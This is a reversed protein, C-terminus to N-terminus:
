RKRFDCREYILSYGCEGTESDVRCGYYQSASYSEIKIPDYECGEIPAYYLLNSDLYWVMDPFDESKSWVGDSKELIYFINGTKSKQNRMSTHVLRREGCKGVEAFEGVLVSALIVTNM